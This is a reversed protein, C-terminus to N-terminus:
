IQVTLSQPKFDKLRIAEIWSIVCGTLRARPSKVDDVRILGCLSSRAFIERARLIAVM